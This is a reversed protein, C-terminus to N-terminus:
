THAGISDRVSQQAFPSVMPESTSAEADPRPDMTEQTQADIVASWDDGGVARHLSHSPEPDLIM